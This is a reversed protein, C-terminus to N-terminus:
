QVTAETASLCRQNYLSYSNDFTSICNVGSVRGAGGTFSYLDLNITGVQSGVILLHTSRANNVRNSGTVTGLTSNQITISLNPNIDFKLGPGGQVDRLLVTPGPENDVIITTGSTITLDALTNSHHLTITPPTPPLNVHAAIITTSGALAGRISVFPPVDLNDIAYIGADLQVVYPNLSSADKISSITAKLEDGNGIGNPNGSYFTLNAAPVIVVHPLAQGPPGQPGTPGQSGSTGPVGQQNWQVVGEVAGNCNAPSGVIRAVGTLKSVCSTITTSQAEVLAPQMALALLGSLLSLRLASFLKM